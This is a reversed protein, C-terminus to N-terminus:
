RTKGGVFEGLDERVERGVWSWAGWEREFIFLCVFCCAFLFLFFGILACSVCVSIYVSFDIFYLIM